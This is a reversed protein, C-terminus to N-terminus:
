PQVPVPMAPLISVDREGQQEAAGGEEQPQPSEEPLPSSEEPSPIVESEETEETEEPSPTATPTATAAANRQLIWDNYRTDALTGGTAGLTGDSNVYMIDLEDSRLDDLYPNLNENVYAVLEDVVPLVYSQYGSTRSLVYKGTCPMTAFTVNEMELKKGSSNGMLAQQGFWVLNGLDLGDVQVNELFVRGLAM